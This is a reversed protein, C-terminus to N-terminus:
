EDDIDDALMQDQQEKFEDDNVAAIEDRSPFPAEYDQKEVMYRYKIYSTLTEELDLEGGLDRPLCAIRQEYSDGAVLEQLEEVGNPMQIKEAFDASMMPRILKWVSSFWYPPNVILFMRCRCPFRGQMTDFFTKAYRIGFNQWGWNEMDAMFAIGESCSKERETMRELFYVLSKILADLPDTGPFYRGPKMYLFQHGDKSRISDPLLILTQTEIQARLTVISQHQLGGPISVSWKQYNKLVKYAADVNFKYKGPSARLFRLLMYDDFEVLHKKKSTWKKKFTDFAKKHEEPLDALQEEVPREVVHWSEWIKEEHSDM